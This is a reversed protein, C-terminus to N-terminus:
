QAMFPWDEVSKYVSPLLINYNCDVVTYGKVMDHTMDTVHWKSNMTKLVVPM